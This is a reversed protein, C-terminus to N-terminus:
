KTNKDGISDLFDPALKIATMNGLVSSPVNYTRVLHEKFLYLLM